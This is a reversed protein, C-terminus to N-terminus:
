QAGGLVMVPAGDRIKMQGETVVMDGPSLGELIEVYGPTRRGLEVKTLSVKGDIVRYVFNDTGQPWLAQEPVSLANKKKSIILSVRAFMGSHLKGAKNSVRARVLATRTEGDVGTEIAYVEGKFVDTPFADVVIDTPQGAQVKALYVEPVRFDVKVSSLDELRAIDAGAELYAGPSVKRLGIVGSFPAIVRTKQLQADAEQVLAALRAVSGAQLDLAEKSIFKQQYLEKLRLYRQQETRLEASIAAVQARYVADDLAVLLQGKQIEQGEKFNLEVLRGSIETRVRVAENAVVNGVASIDELLDGVMVPLAKVPLGQPKAPVAKEVKESAKDIEEAPRNLWALLGLVVVVIVGWFALRNKSESL